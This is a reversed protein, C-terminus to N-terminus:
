AFPDQIPTQHPDRLYEVRMGTPGGGGPYGFTEALENCKQRLSSLVNNFDDNGALNNIERPDKVLNYLEEVSHDNVYRFYKWNPTRVGESPPIKEFEWLHEILVTDRGISESKGSVLPYLSKGHWTAPQELGALDLITAPVDINLALEDIEKHGRQGPIM